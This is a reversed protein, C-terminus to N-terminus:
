TRKLLYLGFQRIRICGVVDYLEQVLASATLTIVSDSWWCKSVPCYLVANMVGVGQKRFAGDPNFVHYFRLVLQLLWRWQDTELKFKAPAQTLISIQYYSIRKRPYTIYYNLSINHNLFLPM